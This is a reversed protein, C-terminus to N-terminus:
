MRGLVRDHVVRLESRIVRLRDSASDLIEARESLTRTIADVLGTPGPLRQVLDFLTPHQFELREFTRNLTRAAVLTSKIDLLDNPALVGAHRALDVPQRVDRVGGITLAPHTVLLRVAEGTESQRRRVEFPDASPRLQLAKEVSAAFACYGALRELIKPFELTILTKEDM